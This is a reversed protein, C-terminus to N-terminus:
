PIFLGANGTKFSSKFADKLKADLNNEMYEM